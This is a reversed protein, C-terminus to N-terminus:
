EGDKKATKKVATVEYLPSNAVATQQEQSLQAWDADTLDRAPIGQYFEGAGIYRYKVNM